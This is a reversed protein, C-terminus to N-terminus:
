GISLYGIFSFIPIKNRVEGNENAIAKVSDIHEDTIDIGYEDCMAIYEPISITGDGGTDAKDFLECLASFIIWIICDHDYTRQIKNQEIVVEFKPIQQNQCNWFM